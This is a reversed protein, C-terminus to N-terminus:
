RCDPLAGGLPVLRCASRAPRHWRVSLRPGQESRPGLRTRSSLRGQPGYHETATIRSMLGDTRLAQLTRQVFRALGVLIENATKVWVYPNGPENHVAIFERIATVLGRVTRHVRALIADSMIADGISSEEALELLDRASQLYARAQELRGKWEDRSVARWGSNRAMPKCSIPDPDWSARCRGPGMGAVPRRQEGPPRRHRAQGVRPRLGDGGVVGAPQRSGGIAAIAPSDISADRGGAPGSREM